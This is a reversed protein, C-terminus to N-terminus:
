ISDPIKISKEKYIEHGFAIYFSVVEELQLETIVQIHLVPGQTQRGPQYFLARILKLEVM